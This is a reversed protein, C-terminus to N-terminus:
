VALLKAGVESDFVSHLRQTRPVLDGYDKLVETFANFCNWLNWDRFESHRPEEFEQVVKTIAQAPIAKAKFARLVIDHLHRPNEVLKEKYLDIRHEQVKRHEILGSVCRGVLAPLRDRIYRTHKSRIVSEGCFALNDCVFVRSGLSLGVPFRKDHSNRIGITLAHDGEDQGKVALTLLGFLRNAEKTLAFQQDVVEIEAPLSNEVSKVVLGHPVPVHARGSPSYSRAPTPSADVVERGVTEAGCHLILKSM